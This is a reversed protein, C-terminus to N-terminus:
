SGSTKMATGQTIASNESGAIRRGAELAAFTSGDDNNRSLHATLDEALREVQPRRLLSYHDGPLISSAIGAPALRPWAQLEAAYTTATQESLWLTLRGSYPQPAYARSAQHNAAYTAF